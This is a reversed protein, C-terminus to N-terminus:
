KMPIPPIPMDARARIRASRPWETLPDSRLSVGAICASSVLAITRNSLWTELLKEWSPASLISSGKTTTLVAPLDVTWTETTGGDGAREVTAKGDAISLGKIETVCPLGLAGALLTGVQGQDRDVALKGCLVLDAGLEKITAALTAATTHADRNGSDEDKLLIAKDSGSARVNTQKKEKCPNVTLDNDRCHEAVIMGPYVAAGPGIFM